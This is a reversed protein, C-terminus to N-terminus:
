GRVAKTDVPAKLSVRCAFRECAIEVEWNGATLWTADVGEDHHVYGLGVSRGVTHGFM